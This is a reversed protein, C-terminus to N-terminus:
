LKLQNIGEIVFVFGQIHQYHVTFTLDITELLLAQVKWDDSFLLQPLVNELRSHRASILRCLHRNGDGDLAYLQVQDIKSESFQLGPWGERLRLMVKHNNVSLDEPNITAEKVVDQGSPDHIDIVGYDVYDKGNWAFLTPCGEGGGGGVYTKEYYAIITKNNFVDVARPNGTLSNNEWYKFTYQYGGSFFLSKMKVVHTGQLVSQVTAPSTLTSGDDVWLNVGTIESETTLYTQITLSYSDHGLIEFDVDTEGCYPPGEPRIAYVCAKAGPGVYAYSSIQIPGVITTQTTNAPITIWKETLGRATNTEDRLVVIVRVDKSALPDNNRLTTKVEVYATRAFKNIPWWTAYFYRGTAASLIEVYYNYYATVVKNAHVVVSRPNDTSRDEWYLFHYDGWYPNMYPDAKVIHIGQLVSVTVPTNTYQTGDIYVWANTIQTENQLRAEVTLSYYSPALIAFPVDYEPCYPAGSPQIACICAQAQGVVAYSAIQLPDLIVDQITNAPITVWKEKFGCPTSLEDM